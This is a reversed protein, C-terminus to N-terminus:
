EGKNYLSIAQNLWDDSFAEQGEVTFHVGDREIYREKDEETRIWAHSIVRIDREKALNRLIENYKGINDGSQLKGNSTFHRAFRDERIPPIEFLLLKAGSEAIWGLMARLNREYEEPSVQQLGEREVSMSDNTGIMLSVLDPKEDRLKRLTPHLITASTGGSIAGDVACLEAAKTVSVRYGLNDSTISDGLFLVKKGYLCTLKDGFKQKLRSARAGQIEGFENLIEQAQMTEEAFLAGFVESTAPYHAVSNQLNFRIFFRDAM